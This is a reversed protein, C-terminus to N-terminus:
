AAQKLRKAENAYRRAARASIPCRHRLWFEWAVPGLEQCVELLLAGLNLARAHARQSAEVVADHEIRIAEALEPLM